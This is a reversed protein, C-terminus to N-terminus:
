RIPAIEFHPIVMFPADPLHKCVYSAARECAAIPQVNVDGSPVCKTWLRTAVEQFVPAELSVKSKPPAKLLLHYHMNYMARGANDARRGEPIAIFQPRQSDPLKAWRSGLLKDALFADFKRLRNRASSLAVPSSNHFALTIFHTPNISTCLAILAQQYELADNYTMTM